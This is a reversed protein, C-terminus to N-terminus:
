EDHRRRQGARPRHDNRAGARGAAPTTTTAPQELSAEAAGRGPGSATSDPRDRAIPRRGRRGAGRVVAAVAALRRHAGVAGGGRARRAVRVPVLATGPEEDRGRHVDDFADLARRTRARPRARGAPPDPVAALSPGCRPRRSSTGLRRAPRRPAADPIEHDTMTETGAPRDLSGASGTTRRPALGPLPWLHAPTPTEAESSPRRSAARRNGRRPDSATSTPAGAPRGAPGSGPRHPLAGDRHPRELM